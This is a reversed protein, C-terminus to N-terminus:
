VEEEGECRDEKVKLQESWCLISKHESEREEMPAMLRELKGKSIGM